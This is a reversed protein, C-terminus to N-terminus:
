SVGLVKSINAIAIGDVKGPVIGFIKNAWGSPAEGTYTCYISYKNTSHSPVLPDPFTGIYNISQTHGQDTDGTDYYLLNNGYIFDDGWMCIVYDIATLTPSSVFNFTKWGATLSPDLEETTGNALLSLDSHVYIACRSSLAVGASHYVSISDGTGAAGTFVSGQITDEITASSGGASEYGFTLGTAHRIPYTANNLFEQPITVSMIGADQDINLYGWAWNGEADFMKPRFIHFAKGSQYNTEGVKNNKKTKHYVAYSGIVNLPRFVGNSLEEDTLEPQYFFDLGKSQITFEIKNSIPKEKLIIEFEHANDIEYFHAEFKEKKYKINDQTEEVIAQSDDDILRASFNCENDWRKLKLQPKFDPQKSDGIEVEFETNSNKYATDNIKIM